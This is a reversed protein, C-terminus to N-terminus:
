LFWVSKGISYVGQTQAEEETVGRERLHIKLHDKLSKKIVMKGCEECAAKERDRANLREKEREAWQKQKLRSAIRGEVRRKTVLCEKYHLKIENIHVKEACSPCKVFPDKTHDEDQMHEILDDPYESERGCSPCHFLGWLHIFKLHSLLKAREKSRENTNVSSKWFCIPCPIPFTEPKEGAGDDEKVDEDGLLYKQSHLAGKLWRDCAYM